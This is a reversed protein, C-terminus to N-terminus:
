PSTTKNLIRQLFNEYIKESQRAFAEKKEQYELIMREKKNVAGPDGKSFYADVWAAIDQDTIEVHFQLGYAGSGVKFAQHPCGQSTALLKGGAPIDFTDEHWQFVCLTPDIGQFLSDSKGEETLAVEFWGIEKVPSKKVKAGVAKAILQSGLCVGLLPIEKEVVKQLFENEEKLFPYPEEEYVNMPGGLSIVADISSFDPPM